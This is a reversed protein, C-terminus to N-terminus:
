FDQILRRQRGWRKTELFTDCSLLLETIDGIEKQFISDKFKMDELKGMSYYFNCM